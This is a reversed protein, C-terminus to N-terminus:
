KKNLFKKCTLYSFISVRSFDEQDKTHNLLTYPKECVLIMSGSNSFEVKNVNGTTPLIAKEEDRLYNWIVVIDEYKVSVFVPESPHLSISEIAYHRKILRIKKFIQGSHTDWLKINGNLDSTGLINGKNNLSFSTVTVDKTEIFKHEIRIQNKSGISMKILVIIGICLLCVM